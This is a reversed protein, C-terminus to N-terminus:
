TDILVNHALTTFVTNIHFGAHRQTAYHSEEPGTVNDDEDRWRNSPKLQDSHLPVAAFSRSVVAPRCDAM